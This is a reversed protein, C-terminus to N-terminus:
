SSSSPPTRPSSQLSAHLRWARLSAAPPQARWKSTDMVPRTLRAAARDPRRGRLLLSRHFDVFDHSARYEDRAGVLADAFRSPHHGLQVGASQRDALVILQDTHDGVAVYRDAGHAIALRRVRPDPVHHGPLHLVSELVLPAVVARVVQGVG